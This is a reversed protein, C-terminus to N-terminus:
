QLAAAVLRFKTIFDYMCAFSACKTNVRSAPTPASHIAARAVGWWVQAGDQSPAVGAASGAAEGAASDFAPDLEMAAAGGDDRVRKFPTVQARTRTAASDSSGAAGTATLTNTAEARESAESAKDNEKGNAVFSGSAQSM